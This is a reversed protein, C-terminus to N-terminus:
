LAIGRPPFCCVLSYSVGAIASNVRDEPPPDGTSTSLEPEVFGKSLDSVLIM